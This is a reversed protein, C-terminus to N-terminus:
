RELMQTPSIRPPFLTRKSSTNQNTKDTNEELAKTLSEIKKALAVLAEANKLEQETAPTFQTRSNGDSIRYPSSSTQFVNRTEGDRLDEAVQLLKEIATQTGDGKLGGKADFLLGSIEQETKSRGAAKLVDSLQQRLIGTRGGSTDSLKIKEVTAVGADHLQATQQLKVKNITKLERNLLEDGDSLKPLDALTKQLLTKTKNNGESLLAIITAFAKAEGTLEGKEGSEGKELEKQMSKSLSGIMRERLEETESVKKLRGLTGGKENPLLVQLQKALNISANRTIRGTADGIGQGMTALLAGSQQPTNGFLPQSLDAIGPAINTSFLESEAVPSARKVAIQFGAVEEATGGTKKKQALIGQAVATQEEQDFPNIRAAQLVADFADEDKLDRGKFSLAVSATKFLDVQRAGTKGQIDAVANNLKEFREPGLNFLAERQVRATEVQVAGADGQRSRINDIEKRLQSAVLRAVGLASSVIGIAGAFKTVQTLAGKFGSQTRKGSKDGARGVKDLKKEMRDLLKLQRQWAQLMERDDVSGTVKVTNGM